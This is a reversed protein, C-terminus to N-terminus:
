VQHYDSDDKTGLQCFEAAERLMAGMLSSGLNETNTTGTATFEGVGVNYNYAPLNDLFLCRRWMYRCSLVYM